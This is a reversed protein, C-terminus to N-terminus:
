FSGSAGGGGSQGGGGKMGPDPAETSSLHPSHPVALSIAGAAALARNESALVRQPTFGRRDGGVGSALWRRLAIATGILLVGLLIPDWAERTWGLYAKNSVITGLAAISSIDIMLRDRDRIGMWLGLPPVIWILIYTCWFFVGSSVSSFGLWRTAMLNLVLYIGAFAMVQAAAWDDGAIEGRHRHHLRRAMFFLVAFVLASLLRKGVPDTSWATPFFFPALGALATAAVIAYRFGFLAYVGFSGLVGVVLAGVDDFEWVRWSASIGLLIVAAVALAEEVGYRYLRGQTAFLRALVLSIVAWVAFVLFEWPRQAGFIRFGSGSLTLGVSATVILGTFVFLVGRLIPNTQRLEVHLGKELETEQQSNLFGSAVWDQVLAQDRLNEEDRRSYVRM